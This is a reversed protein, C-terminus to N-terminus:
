EDSIIVILLRFVACCLLQQMMWVDLSHFFSLLLASATWCMLVWWFCHQWTVVFTDQCTQSFCVVYLQLTLVTVAVRRSVQTTGPPPASLLRRLAPRPRAYLRSDASSGTREPGQLRPRKRGTTTSPSWSARLVPVCVLDKLFWSDFISSMM